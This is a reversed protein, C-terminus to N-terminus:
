NKGGSAIVGFVFFSLSVTFAGLSHGFTEEISFILALISMFWAYMFWYETPIKEIAAILKM